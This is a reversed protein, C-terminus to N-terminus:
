TTLRYKEGDFIVGGKKALRELHKTIMAREAFEFFWRPARPRKYIIWQAIIESLSRPRCLFTCLAAERQNIVELYQEARESLNGEVIGIEHSTIFIEAPILLLRHVSAITDDIDSVRDGYWPGFRTLDLDGLFLVKEDPFYFSCHGPTHGPTHIVVMRTEGFSLESGEQFEVTPTRERYNFSHILTDRWVTEFESGNLGYCDLLADISQYCATEERHVYLDADPFLYNGNTHDEHYHSNVIIDIEKDRHLKRLVMEDSSPDIIASIEDNIFLSNCFPYRGENAGAIFVLRGFSKERM